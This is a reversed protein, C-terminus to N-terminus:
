KHESGSQKAALSRRHEEEALSQKKVYELVIEEETRAASEAKERKQQEEQSQKVARLMEADEEVPATQSAQKSREIALKINEDDDTEVGSDDSDRGPRLHSDDVGDHGHLSMRLAAELEREHDDGASSQGTSQVSPHQSRALKAEAISAQIARRMADQDDGERSARQLEAVSARIAKEIMEDEAANGRSTADVSERIAEEYEVEDVSTPATADGGLGQTGLASSRRRGFSSHRRHSTGQPSKQRLSRWQKKQKGLEIQAAHWRAVIDHREQTSSKRWDDYGQATRAAIIYNEVSSGLHKQLEKYIGKFTYGPLGWIAEFSLLAVLSSSAYSVLAPNLFLM